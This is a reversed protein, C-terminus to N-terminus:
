DAARNRVERRHIAVAVGGIQMVAEENMSGQGVFCAVALRTKNQSAHM